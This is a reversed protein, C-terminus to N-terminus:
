EDEWANPLDATGYGSLPKLREERAKQLYYDYRRQSGNALAEHAQQEWSRALSQQRYRAKHVNRYDGNVRALADDAEARWREAGERDGEALAEREWREYKEHDALQDRRHEQDAERRRRNGFM